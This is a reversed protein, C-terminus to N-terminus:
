YNLRYTNYFFPSNEKKDRYWLSLLKEDILKNIMKSIRQQTVGLERALDEQNIRFLNGKLANPYERQEKHHLYRMYCYLEYEETSIFGKICEYTASFSIIFKCEEKSREKNLKYFKKRNITEVTIFGNDELEKM